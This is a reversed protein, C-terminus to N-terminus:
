DYWPCPMLCTGCQALRLGLRQLTQGIWRRVHLRLTRWRFPKSSIGLPPQKVATLELQQRERSAAHPADFRWRKCEVRHFQLAHDVRQWLDHNKVPVMEGHHEWQWDSDRWEDLGLALGRNVYQSPTLLTVRSPRDIAELGRVVSLLELREGQCGPECDEAKFLTQGATTQLVFKWHDPQNSRGADTLLLIHTVREARSLEGFDASHCPGADTGLAFHPAPISM